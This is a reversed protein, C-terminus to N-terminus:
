KEYYGKIFHDYKAKLGHKQLIGALLQKDIKAEDLLKIIREKDKPRFTQLMIALLHEARVIRTKASKYKVERASEVAENILDNYVPIFQVPIGEIMIHEKHPKYGKEKKLWDYIPSLTIIKQEQAPIFLIDLDYTFIPEVYFVTAIGGGLAFDNIIGKERLENIIKLAKEM